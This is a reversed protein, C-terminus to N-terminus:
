LFSAIKFLWRGIRSEPMYCYVNGQWLQPSCDKNQLAEAYGAAKMCDPVEAELDALTKGADENPHAHQTAVVCEHLQARQGNLGAVWWRAGTGALGGAVICGAIIAIGTLYRRLRPHGDAGSAPM